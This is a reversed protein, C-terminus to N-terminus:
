PQWRPGSAKPWGFIVGSRSATKVTTDVTNHPRRYQPRMQAYPASVCSSSGITGALVDGTGGTALAPNEFPAVALQGDPAAIVTRAGKLVVVQGWTAAADRAAAARASDDGALDGDDSPERGSGARLREFEGPHPTLVLMRGQGSLEALHGAFANLGDADLVVPAPSGAVLDRVFGSTEDNTTLGPGIALADADQHM